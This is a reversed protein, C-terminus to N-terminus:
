EYDCLGYVGISNAFVVLDLRRVGSGFAARGATTSCGVVDGGGGDGGDCM